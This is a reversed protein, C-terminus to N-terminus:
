SSAGEGAAPAFKRLKEKALEAEPLSALDESGALEEYTKRAAEMDNLQEFAEGSRLYAKAVADRWKGYLIYIRQYYPVAKAPQNRAMELEGLALLAQAKLKGSVNEAALLRTYAAAAEDTRDAEMELRARTMLVEGMLPSWPTDRELRAYYDLATSTDGEDLAMQALAALAKDKEGSRPHWKLLNRYLDAARQRRTVSEEATEGGESALQAEACDALIMPNTTEPKALLAAERLLAVSLGPDSKRVARSLAWISRVALVDEGAQTARDRLQRLAAQHDLKEVDTQYLRGLALFLDEVSGAEPDNGFTNIAKWYEEIALDNREEQRWSQGIFLLAEAARPSRQHTALYEQMLARLGEYDEELKLVKALKFQAEEHFRSGTDTVGRYAEKGEDAKAQALLADGLLIFAEDREAGQPFEDLYAQLEQEAREYDKMSQACYARRFAAEAHMKGEPFRGAHDALVERAAEFQRAFALASGRWYNAPESMEHEPYKAAFDAFSAAAEENREAMLQTFGQMFLARPAQESDPFREQLGAFTALAEDYLDAQQQAIGRLYIVLPLSESEPFKEEFLLSTEVARDHREIAMWSQLTSLSAKEVVGDAPMQRLMDELLMACERYREQEYFATALRFRVSADFSEIKELSALEKAIDRDLQRAQARAFVDPKPSKEIAALRARIEELQRTQHAILRERPWIVHLARIADRPRDQELFKEGLGLALTQFLALQGIDEASDGGEEVLLALAEDDRDTQILCHLELVAARGRHPHAPERRIATFIEAAEEHKEEALLSGAMLMVADPGRRSEPFDKRFKQLAKRAEEHQETQLLSLGRWFALDEKKEAPLKEGVIVAEDIEELADGFKQTQLLAAALNYRVNPMWAKAETSSGFDEIFRRYGAIAEEFRKANYAADARMIIDSATGAQPAAPTEEDEARPTAVGVAALLLILSFQRLRRVRLM